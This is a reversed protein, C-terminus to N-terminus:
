QVKTAVCYELTFQSSGHEPPGSEQLSRESAGHTPVTRSIYQARWQYETCGSAILEQTIARRMSPTGHYLDLILTGGPALVRGAERVAQRQHTIDLYHLVFSCLVVSFRGEAYPLASAAGTRVEYGRKTAWAAMAPEADVGFLKFQQAIDPVAAVLLGSGCGIDLLLGTTKKEKLISEYLQFVSRKLELDVIGEYSPRDPNIPDPEALLQYLRQVFAPHHVGTSAVLFRSFLPTAFSVQRNLRLDNQEIVPVGGLLHWHKFSFLDWWGAIDTLLEISRTTDASLTEVDTQPTSTLTLLWEQTQEIEEAVYAYKGDSNEDTKLLLLQGLALEIRGLLFALERQVNEQSVVQKTQEDDAAKQRLSRMWTIAAPLLEPLVLRAAAETQRLEPTNGPSYERGELLTPQVMDSSIM